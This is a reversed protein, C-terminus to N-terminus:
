PGNPKPKEQTDPANKSRICRGWGVLTEKLKANIEGNATQIKDKLETCQDKAAVCNLLAAEKAQLASEKAQLAVAQAPRARLFWLALWLITAVLIGSVFVALLEADWGMGSSSSYKVSGRM